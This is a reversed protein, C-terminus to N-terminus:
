GNERERMVRVYAAPKCSIWKVVTIFIYLFIVCLTFQNSLFVIDRRPISLLVTLMVVAIYRKWLGDDNKLNLLKGFIVAEFFIVVFGFWKFNIYSEAVLSFGVGFNFSFHETLLGELQTYPEFYSLVNFVDLTSPVLNAIAGIYTMGGFTGYGSKVLQMTWVISTGSFGAEGLFQVLINKQVLNKLVVSVFSASEVASRYDAVSVSITALLFAGICLALLTGGSIKKKMLLIVIVGVMLGFALSRGGIIFSCVCNFAACLIIFLKLKKNHESCIVAGISAPVFFVGVYRIIAPQTLELSQSYGYALSYLALYVNYTLYPIASIFFVAIFTKKMSSNFRADKAREKRKQVNISVLIGLCFTWLCILTYFNADFLVRLDRNYFSSYYSNYFFYEYEAGLGFLLVQGYSFAFMSLAFVTALTIYENTVYKFVLLFALLLVWGMLGLIRLQSYSLAGSCVDIIKYLSFIVLGVLFFIFTGLFKKRTNLKNQDICFM